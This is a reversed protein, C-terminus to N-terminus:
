ESLYMEMLGSACAIYKGKATIKIRNRRGIKERIIYGDKNLQDLYRRNLRMLKNGLKDEEFGPEGAYTLFKMIEDTNLGSEEYCLRVLIQESIPDPRIIQFNPIFFSNCNESMGYGHSEASEESISYSDAKVYYIEVNHIMGAIGSALSTLKSGASINLYVNNGAEHEKRSIYSVTKLIDLFDFMDYGINITEIGKSSLHHSVNKLFKKQQNEFQTQVPCNEPISLLYIRDASISDFLKVARDYEHGLPIIHIKKSFTMLM